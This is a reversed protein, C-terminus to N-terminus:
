RFQFGDLCLYQVGLVDSDGPPLRPRTSKTPVLSLFM